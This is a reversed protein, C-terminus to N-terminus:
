FNKFIRVDVCDNVKKSKGNGVATIDNVTVRFTFTPEHIQGETSLCEYQPSLGKKTCLEQLLSIPTKQPVNHGAPDEM